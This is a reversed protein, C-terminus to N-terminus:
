NTKKKELLLRCVLNVHSQLESTHEESRGPRPTRSARAAVRKRHASYNDAPLAPLHKRRLTTLFARRAPPIPLVGRAGIASVSGRAAERHLRGFRRSVRRSRRRTASDPRPTSQRPITRSCRTECLRPWLLAVDLIWRRASLPRVTAFKAECKRSSRGGSGTSVYSSHDPGVASLEVRALRPGSRM